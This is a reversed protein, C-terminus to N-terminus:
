GNKARTPLADPPRGIAAERVVHMLWMEENPDTADIKGLPRGARDLIVLSVLKRLDGIQDRPYFRQRKVFLGRLDVCIGEPGAEIITWRFGMRLTIVLTTFAVTTVVSGFPMLFAHHDLSLLFLPPGTLCGLIEAVFLLKIFTRRMPPPISVRVGHEGIRELVALSNPPQSSYGLPRTPPATM